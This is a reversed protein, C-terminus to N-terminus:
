VFAAVESVVRTDEPRLRREPDYYAALAGIRRGQMVLRAIITHGEVSVREAPARLSPRLRATAPIRWCRTAM